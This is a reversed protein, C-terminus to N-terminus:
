SARWALILAGIILFMSGKILSMKKKDLADAEKLSQEATVGPRTRPPNLQLGKRVTSTAWTLLVYVLVDFLIIVGIFIVLTSGSFM